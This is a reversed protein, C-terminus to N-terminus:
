RARSRGKCTRILDAVNASRKRVEKSPKSTAGSRSLRCVPRGFLENDPLTSKFGRRPLAPNTTWTRRSAGTLQM